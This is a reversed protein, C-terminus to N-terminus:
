FMNLFGGKKVKDMAQSAQQVAHAAADSNGTLKSVLVEIKHYLEVIRLMKARIRVMRTGFVDDMAEQVGFERLKRQAENSVHDMGKQFLWAKIAQSTLVYILGMQLAALLYSIVVSRILPKADAVGKHFQDQYNALQEQIEDYATDTMNHFEASAEHVQNNAEGVASDKVNEITTAAKHSQNQLEDVTNEKANQFSAVADQEQTEGNTSNQIEASKINFENEPDYQPLVTNVRLLFRSNNLVVADEVASNTVTLYTVGMQAVFALAIIPVIIRWYFAETSQLYSPVYKDFDLQQEAVAVKSTVLGQAEDFERDIDGTDPINVNPDLKRLLAEQKAAVDLTPKMPELVKAVKAQLGDIKTDTLIGVNHVAGQLNTELQEAKAFIPKAADMCRAQLPLATSVFILAANIYPFLVATVGNVGVTVSLAMAALATGVATLTPQVLSQLFAQGKSAFEGPSVPPLELPIHTLAIASDLSLFLDAQAPDLSSYDSQASVSAHAQEVDPVQEYGVKDGTSM